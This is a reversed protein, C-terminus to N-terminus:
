VEITRIVANQFMHPYIERAYYSDLFKGAADKSKYKECKEVNDAFVPSGGAAADIILYNGDLNQIAYVTNKM